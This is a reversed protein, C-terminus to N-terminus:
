MEMQFSMIHSYYYSYVSFDFFGLVKRPNNCHDYKCGYFGVAMCFLSQNPMQDLSHRSGTLVSFLFCFVFCWSDIDLSMKLCEFCTLLISFIKRNFIFKIELKGLAITLLWHSFSHMLLFM